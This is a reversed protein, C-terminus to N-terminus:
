GKGGLVLYKTFLRKAKVADCFSVRYCHHYYDVGLDETNWDVAKRNYIYFEDGHWGGKWAKMAGLLTLAFDGLVFLSWTDGVATYQGRLSKAFEAMDSKVSFRVEDVSEVYSLLEWDLDSVAVFIDEGDHGGGSVFGYPQIVHLEHVFQEIDPRTRLVKQEGTETDKLYLIMNYRFLENEPGIYSSQTHYRGGSMFFGIERIVFM